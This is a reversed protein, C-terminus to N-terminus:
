PCNIIRALPFLYCLLVYLELFHCFSFCCLPKAYAAKTSITTPQNAVHHSIYKQFIKVSSHTPITTLDMHYLDQPRPCLVNVLYHRFLTSVALGLFDQGFPNHLYSPALVLAYIRIWPSWWALCAFFLFPVVRSLLQYAMQSSLQHCSSNDLVSDRTNPSTQNM